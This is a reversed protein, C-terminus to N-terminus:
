KIEPFEGGSLFVECLPKREVGRRRLTRGDELHHLVEANGVQNM